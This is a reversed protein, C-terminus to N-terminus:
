VPLGREQRIRRVQDVVAGVIEGNRDIAQFEWFNVVANACLTTVAVIFHITAASLGFWGQFGVASAPDAAAGFAGTLILLILCVMMGGVTRYKLKQNQARWTGDLRYAHSTEEIWRGTGMFYTLVIAHVLAGFVLGAAGTLFHNRVQALAAPDPSKADEIMLGLIFAAVLLITSVVALSSFINRV